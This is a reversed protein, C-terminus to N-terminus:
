KAIDRVYLRDEHSYLLKLRAILELYRNTGSNKAGEIGEIDYVPPLSLRAIGSLPNTALVNINDAFLYPVLLGTNLRYGARRRAGQLQLIILDSEYVDFSLVIGEQNKYSLVLANNGALPTELNRREEAQNIFALAIDKAKVLNPNVENRRYREFDAAAPPVFLERINPM